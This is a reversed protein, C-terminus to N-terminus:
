LPGRQSLKDREREWVEYSTALVGRNGLSKSNSRVYISKSKIKETKCNKTTTETRYILGVWTPKRACTLTADRITDYGREQGKPRPSRGKPDRGQGSIPPKGGSSSRGLLLCMFDYAYSDTLVHRNDIAVREDRSEPNNSGLQALWCERSMACTNRYSQNGMRVGHSRCVFSAFRLFPRVTM